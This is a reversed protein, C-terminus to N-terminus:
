AKPSKPKGFIPGADASNKLLDSDELCPNSLTCFDHSTFAM